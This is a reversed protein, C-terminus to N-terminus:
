REEVNRRKFPRMRENAFPEDVFEARGGLRLLLAPRLNKRPAAGENARRGAGAFSQGRKEGANIPQHAFRDGAIQQILGFDKVDRRQFREAVVNLFIEVGREAFNQLQRALAAVQHRLDAGGHAGAVRQHVFAARHEIARRVNEDGRGFREVNQERGRLAAFNQAGDLRDDHVFNVGDGVVLAARMKREREFPEFRQRRLRGHADAKGGRLLRDLQDSLKQHAAIAGSRHDDFHRLAPVDIEGDFHRRAFEARNSRIFHPVLNVRADRLQHLLMAGRQNEHIRAAQGFADSVIERRQEAFIGDGRMVAAKRALAPERHFRFQLGAFNAREDGGCREFQADIDACDIEDALNARRAGDRDGQLAGSAGAM